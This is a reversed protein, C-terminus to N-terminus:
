TLPEKGNEAAWEAILEKATGDKKGNTYVTSGKDNRDKRSWTQVIGTDIEAKDASGWWIAHVQTAAGKAGDGFMVAKTFYPM